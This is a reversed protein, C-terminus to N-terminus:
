VDTFSEGGRCRSARHLLLHGGGGGGGGQM